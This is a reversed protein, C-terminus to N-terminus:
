MDESKAFLRSIRRRDTLDVRKSRVRIAQKYAEIEEKNM